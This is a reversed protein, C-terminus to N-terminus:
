KKIWNIKKNKTFLLAEVMFFMAYYASSISSEYDGEKLLINASKLSKKAKEVLIQIEIKKVVM